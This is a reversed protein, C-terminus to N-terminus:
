AAAVGRESLMAEVEVPPLPRAFHYGQGYECTLGALAHVQEPTEIGEAIVHLGLNHALGVISRVIAESESRSVMDAVFARDIKLTDGPFTHLVTLSSYGTGFDDLQVGVGLELLQSLVARVLEPNEMLISETIELV